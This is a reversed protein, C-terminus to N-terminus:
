PKQPSSPPTLSIHLSRLTKNADWEDDSSDDTKPETIQPEKDRYDPEMTQTGTHVVKRKFYQLRFITQLCAISLAIMIQVTLDWSM